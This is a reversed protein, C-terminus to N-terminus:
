AGCGHIVNVPGGSMTGNQFDLQVIDAEWLFHCNTKNHRSDAHVTVLVRLDVKGPRLGYGSCSSM